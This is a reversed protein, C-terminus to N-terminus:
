PWPSPISTGAPNGAYRGAPLPRMPRTMTTGNWSRGASRPTAAALAAPTAAAQCRPAAPPASAPCPPSGPPGPLPLARQPGPSPEQGPAGPLESPAAMALGASRLWPQDARRLRPWPPWPWLARCQGPQRAQCKRWGSARHALRGDSAHQCARSPDQDEHQAEGGALSAGPRRRGRSVRCARAPEPRLADQPGPEQPSRPSSRDQGARLAQARGRRAVRGPEGTDPNPRGM